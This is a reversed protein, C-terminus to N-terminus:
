HGREDADLIRQIMEEDLTEGGNYGDDDYDECISEDEAALKKAARAAQLALHHAGENGDVGAHGRIHKWDVAEMRRCALWLTLFLRKNLVTEGTNTKWDNRMWIKWWSTMAKVVIESDTFVVLRAMGGLRANQVAIIAATLEARNNTVEVQRGEDGTVSVLPESVNRSDNEGWFVGAGGVRYGSQTKVSSGDVYVCPVDSGSSAPTSASASHTLAMRIRDRPIATRCATWSFRTVIRTSLAM